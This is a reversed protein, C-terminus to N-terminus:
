SRCRVQGDPRHARELALGGTIPPEWSTVEGAWRRSPCEHARAGQDGEDDEQEAPRHERASELPEVHGSRDHEDGSPQQQAVSRPRHDVDRDLRVRHVPQGLDGERQEQEGVGGPDVRLVEAAVGPERGAQEGDAQREGEREPGPEGRRQEGVQRPLQGSQEARHESGGVGRQAGAHHGVLGQGLGDPARQVHLAAEVVADGGRDDGGEDRGRRGHEPDADDLVRRRVGPVPASTSRSPPTTMPASTPYRPPTTTVRGPGCPQIAGPPRRM